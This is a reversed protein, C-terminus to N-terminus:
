RGNQASVPAGRWKLAASFAQLYRGRPSRSAYVITSGAALEADTYEVRM